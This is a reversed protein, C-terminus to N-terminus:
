GGFHQSAYENELSFINVIRDPLDYAKFHYWIHIYGGLSLASILIVAVLTAKFREEEKICHLLDLM